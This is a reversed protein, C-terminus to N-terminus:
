ALTLFRLRAPPIDKIRLLTLVHLTDLARDIVAHDSVKAGLALYFRLLPPLRSADPTQDPLDLTEPARRGPSPSAQYARLAALGAGHDTAAGPFSSCGFVMEVAEAAIVRTLLAWALRLIAPDTHHPHLCFRGLELAPGGRPLPTLDYVGAAYSPALDSGAAFDQVRACAVLRGDEYVVLHRCFADFADFDVGEAGRFALHRLARAATLDAEPPLLRATLRGLTLFPVQLMLPM